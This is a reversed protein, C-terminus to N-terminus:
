SREQNDVNRDDTFVFFEMKKEIRLNINCLFLYYKM